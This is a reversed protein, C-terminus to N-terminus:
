LPSVSTLAPAVVIRDRGEAKAQYLAADAARLVDEPELQQDPIAVALGFSLSVYPSVSSKPHVIARARLTSRLRNLLHLAGELDTKPLILAFEEGGYRAALDAPRRIVTDLVAAIARLCQDGSIHGYTDNYPKFYDVDCLVVALPTQERRCLKWEYALKEDFARRNAIGTLSDQVALQQLIQNDAALQQELLREQTLLASLKLSQQRARLLSEVRLLLETQDVPMTIVDDVQQRQPATILPLHHRKLLLLFPLFVPSAAERQQAIHEGCRGVFATDFICLDFAQGWRLGETPLEQLSYFRSLLASLLQRNQQHDVGLLVRYQWQHDSDPLSSALPPSVDHSM